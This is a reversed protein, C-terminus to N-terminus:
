PVFIGPCNINGGLPGNGFVNEANLHFENGFSSIYGSGVGGSGGLCVVGRQNATIQISGPTRFTDSFVVSGDSLQMGGGNGRITISELEVVSNLRARIGSRGNNEILIQGTALGSFSAISGMMLVGNGGNGAITGGSLDLTSSRKAEVGGGLNNRVSTGVANFYTGAVAVGVVNGEIVSNRVHVAGGNACIGCGAEQGGSAVFNRITTRDVQATGVTVRLGGAGQTASPMTQEITSNVLHLYAGDVVVGGHGANIVLSQGWVSAGRRVDLADNAAQLTLRFLLVSNNGLVRVAHAMDNPAQLGAGPESGTMSVNDRGVTISEVCVGSIRIILRAARRAHQALVAGVSEGAGCNVGVEVPQMTAELAAVRADLAEMDAVVGQARASAACGLVVTMVLVSNRSM